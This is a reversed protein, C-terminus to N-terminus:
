MGFRMMVYTLLPLTFVGAITSYFISTSSLVTDGGFKETFISCSLAVPMGGILCTLIKQQHTLKLGAQELLIIAAVIVAPVLFLRFVSIWMLLKKQIQQGIDMGGLVAGSVILALPVTLQGIMEVTSYLSKLIIVSVNASEGSVIIRQVGPFLLVLSISVVTAILGPNVAINRLSHVGKFGGKLVFVGVTWLALQGGANFLLITRIGDAGFLGEAIPLPLYVWNSIAILFAFTHRQPQPCLIRAAIIGILASVALVFFALLPEIWAERLVDRSVTATIQALILAPMSVDAVFVSLYRTLDNNLYGRKRLFWGALMVLVMALIKYLVIISMNM